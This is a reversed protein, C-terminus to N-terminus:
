RRGGQREGDRCPAHSGAKTDLGHGIWALGWGRGAGARRPKRNGSQGPQLPNVSLGRFALSMKSSGSLLPARHHIRMMLDMCMPAEVGEVCMKGIPVGKAQCDTDRSGVLAATDRADAIPHLEQM